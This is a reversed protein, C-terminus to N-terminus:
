YVLFMRRESFNNNEITGIDANMEAQDYTEFFGNTFTKGDSM